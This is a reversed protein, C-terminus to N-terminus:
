PRVGVAVHAVPRIGAEVRQERLDDAVRRRAEALRNGPSVAAKTFEFDFADLRVDSKELIMKANQLDLFDFGDRM